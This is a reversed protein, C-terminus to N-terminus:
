PMEGKSITEADIYHVGDPLKEVLELAFNALQEPRVPNKSFNNILSNHLWPAWSHILQHGIGDSEDPEDGVLPGPQLIITKDFKQEIVSTETEGKLRIYDMHKKASAGPVSILVFCECGRSKAADALRTQLNHDQITRGHRGADEKATSVASILVTADEPLYKDWKYVDAMVIKELKSSPPLDPLEVRSFAYVKKVRDSELATLLFSNGALSSSGAIIINM